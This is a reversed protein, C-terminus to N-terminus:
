KLQVLAPPAPHEGRGPVEASPHWHPQLTSLGPNPHWGRLIHPPWPPPFLYPRQRLHLSHSGRHVGPPCRPLTPTGNLLPRTPFPWLPLQQVLPILHWVVRAQESAGLSRCQRIGQEPRNVDSRRRWWWRGQSGGMRCHRTHCRWHLPIPSLCVPVPLPHPQHHPLFHASLM